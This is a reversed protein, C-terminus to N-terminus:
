ERTTTPDTEWIFYHFESRLVRRDDPTPEMLIRQEVEGGFSLDVVYFERSAPDELRGEVIFHDGYERPGDIPVYRGEDFRVLRLEMREPTPPPSLSVPAIDWAIGSRFTEGRSLGPSISVIQGTMEPIPVDGRLALGDPRALFDHTFSTATDGRGSTMELVPESASFPEPGLPIQLGLIDDWAGFLGFIPTTATGAAGFQLRRGTVEFMFEQHPNWPMDLRMLVGQRPFIASLPPVTSQNPRFPDLDAQQQPQFPTEPLGEPSGLEAMPIEITPFRGGGDSFQPPAPPQPRPRDGSAVPSMTLIVHDLAILGDALSMTFWAAEAGDNGAFAASVDAWRAWLEAALAMDEPAYRLVFLRTSSAFNALDSGQGAIAHSRNVPDASAETELTISGFQDTERFRAYWDAGNSLQTVPADVHQYLELSSLIRELAQIHAIIESAAEHVAVNQDIEDRLAEAAGRYTRGDPLRAEPDARSFLNYQDLLTEDRNIVAWLTDLRARWLDSADASFWGPPHNLSVHELIISTQVPGVASWSRNTVWGASTLAPGGFDIQAEGWEEFTFRFADQEQGLVSGVALSSLAIGLALRM